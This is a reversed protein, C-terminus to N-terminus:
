DRVHVIDDEPLLGIELGVFDSASNLSGPTSVSRTTRCIIVSMTFSTTNHSPVNGPPHNNQPTQVKYWGASVVPLVAELEFRVLIKKKALLDAERGTFVFPGFAPLVHYM